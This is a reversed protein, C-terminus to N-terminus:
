FVPPIGQALNYGFGIGGKIFRFFNLGLGWWFGQRVEVVDAPELIPDEIVGQAVLTLDVEIPPQGYRRIVTLDPSADPVVLGGAAAIAETATMTRAMTFEGPKQVYGTVYFKTAPAVYLVDGAHITFNQSTDGAALDELDVEITIPLEDGARAARVLTATRGTREVGGGALALAEVVTTTNSRLYVVGPLAVAGLVGIRKSKYEKINISVQPDQLFRAGLVETITKRLQTPTQGAAPVPGILPLSIRGELDIQITQYSTQGIEVLDLVGVELVDEPGLEYTDVRPPLLMSLSGAGFSRTGMYDARVRRRLAENVEGSACGLSLVSLAALALNLRSM